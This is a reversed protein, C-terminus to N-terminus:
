PVDDTSQLQMGAHRTGESGNSGGLVYAQLRVVDLDYLWTNVSRQSHVCEMIDHQCAHNESPHRFSSIGLHMSSSHM